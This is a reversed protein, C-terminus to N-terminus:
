VPQNFDARKWEIAPEDKRNNKIAESSIDCGYYRHHPFQFQLQSIFAGDGSGIDLVKLKKKTSLITTLEKYMKKCRDENLFNETWGSTSFYKDKKSSVAQPRM